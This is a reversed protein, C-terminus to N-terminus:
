ATTRRHMRQQRQGFRIAGFCCLGAVLLYSLAAGGEAVAVLSWMEQPHPTSGTPMYIWLNGYQSLTVGNGNNWAAIANNLYTSGWTSLQNGAAVTASGGTIYWIAESIGVLQAATLGTSTLALNTLYAVETYGAVGVTAGFLTLSGINGANLSAANVGNAPWVEGTHINDFYDDCLMGPVANGPGVNVGNVTGGYLGAGVCGEPGICSVGSYYGNFSLSTSVQGVAHPALSLAAGLAFVLFIASRNKM